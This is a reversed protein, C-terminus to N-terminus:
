RRWSENPHHSQYGNVIHYGITFGTWNPIGPSGFIWPDYLGTYGLQAKGEEVARM